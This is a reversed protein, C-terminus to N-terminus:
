ELLMMSQSLEDWADSTYTFVSSGCLWHCHVPSLLFFPFLSCFFSLVQVPSDSEGTIDTCDQLNISVLSTIGGM